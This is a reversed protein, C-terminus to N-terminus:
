SDWIEGGLGYVLYDALFVGPVLTLCLYVPHSRPAKELQEQM